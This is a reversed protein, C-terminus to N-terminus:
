TRLSIPRQCGSTLDSSLGFPDHPPGALCRALSAAGFADRGGPWWVPGM